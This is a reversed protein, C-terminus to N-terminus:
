ILTLQKDEEPIWVYYVLHHWTPSYRDKFKEKSLGVIMPKVQDAPITMKQKKYRIVFGAEKEEAEKLYKDRIGFQGKWLSSIRISIM